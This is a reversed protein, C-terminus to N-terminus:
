LVLSPLQWLEKSQMIGISFNSVSFFSVEQFNNVEVLSIPHWGRYM